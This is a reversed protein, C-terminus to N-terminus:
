AIGVALAAADTRTLRKRLSGLSRETSHDLLQRATREDREIAWVEVEGRDVVVLEGTEAHWRVEL